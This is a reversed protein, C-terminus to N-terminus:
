TELDDHGAPAASGAILAAIAAAPGPRSFLYGQVEACGAAQVARLQAVTEVGEATTDMGLSRGLTCIAGVIALAHGAQTTDKVFSRDIKLKDFPFRRLYSLSSYGTGFDDMAVRIGRERLAHLTALATDTDDLLVAETIELELRQPPLGSAALADLVDRLLTRGKFQVPSVNVAIRVAAPWAMATRCAQQLVWRGIPIVLGTDEALPIFDAPSVRGRVPHNWRVLAEVGVVVQDAAGVRAQYALEFEGREIAGRLDTELQRRMRMREDMEPEFYRLVGRGAAKARYLALDACKLLQEPTDGDFPAVAVGVSTGIHVQQGDLDFPEALAAILRRALVTAGAPQATGVQLVAFEDGGLRAVTDTDRTHHRLREAVQRLLADGAAHGLTDNVAKFRDLDLCLVALEEGRGTCPLRSDLAECLQARNPLGTLLDHRALYVVQQEGRRRETIDEHLAVCAGDALRTVVVEIIRGDDLQWERRRRVPQGPGAPLTSADAIARAGHSAAMIDVFRAGPCCLAGPLQWIERYRRNAVLLRDAADFMCVGHAMQEIVTAHLAALQRASAGPGPADRGRGRGRLRPM